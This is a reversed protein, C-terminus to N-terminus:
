TTVVVRWGGGVRVVEVREVDTPEIRGVIKGARKLSKIQKPM